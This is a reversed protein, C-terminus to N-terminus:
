FRYNGRSPLTATEHRTSADPLHRPLTAYDHATTNMYHFAAGAARYRFRRSAQRPRSEVDREAAAIRSRFRQEPQSIAEAYHRRRPATSAHMFYFLCKMKSYM